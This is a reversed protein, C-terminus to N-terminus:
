EDFGFREPRVEHTFGAVALIERAGIDIAIGACTAAAHPHEPTAMNTCISRPYGEHSGLRLWADNVDAIPSAALTQEMAQQRDHTTSQPPVRSCSAIEDDLCHNSHVFSDKEGSFILKRKTGSSEVSYVENKDAVLYHHGSGMKCDLLMDKACAASSERLCKRVIASWVVGIQADTSTLNNIGISLGAANQGAMGLCGTLSLLWADKGAVDPVRMMMVYPMASAHMDWTQAFVPKGECASWLITCGGDFDAEAALPTDPSLDRIDTYQNLLVIKGTSVGAGEAIGILEQYLDEDFERLVPLHHEAVRLLSEESFGSIRCALYIRIEILSAIEGAYRAGHLHGRDYATECNRLDLIRM